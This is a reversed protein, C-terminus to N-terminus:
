QVTQFPGIFWSQGRAFIVLGFRRGGWIPVSIHWGIVEAGGKHWHM